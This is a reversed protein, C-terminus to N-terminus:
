ASYWKFRYRIRQKKTLQYVRQSRKASKNKVSHCEDIVVVNYKSNSIADMITDNLLSEYNLIIVDKDLNKNFDELFNKEREQQTKGKYNSFREVVYASLSSKNYVEGLWQYKVSAPCIVIARRLQKNNKLKVMAALAQLTKGLGMVDAILVRKNHYAYNAGVVQFPYLVVRIGDFGDVHSYKEDYIDNKIEQPKGITDPTNLFEIDFGFVKVLENIQNTKLVYCKNAKDYSKKIDKMLLAVARYDSLPRVRMYGNDIYEVSIM